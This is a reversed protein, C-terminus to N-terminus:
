TVPEAPAQRDRLRYLAYGALIAVVNAPVAFCVIQWWTPDFDPFAVIGIVAAANNVFHLLVPVWLSRTALYAAHLFCGLLFTWLGQALDMHMAGFLISTVLVGVLVGYRGVLGRGLFGRCFLEENVAAGVAVVLFCLWFGHHRVGEVVLERSPEGWGTVSEVLTEVGFGVLMLAPLCLVSLLFPVLPPRRVQIADPWSRGARARLAILSLCVGLVQGAFLVPLEYRALADTNLDGTSGILWIMVAVSPIVQSLLVFGLTWLVSEWVGPVPRATARTSIAPVAAPGEGPVLEDVDQRVRPTASRGDLPMPIPNTPSSCSMAKKRTQGCPLCACRAQRAAITTPNM